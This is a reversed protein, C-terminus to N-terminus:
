TNYKKFFDFCKSFFLKRVNKESESTWSSPKELIQARARFGRLFRSFDCIPGPLAPYNHFGDWVKKESNLLNRRDFYTMYWGRVVMKSSTTNKHLQAMKPQNRSFGMKTSKHIHSMASPFCLIRPFNNKRSSKISSSNMQYRLSHFKPKQTFLM